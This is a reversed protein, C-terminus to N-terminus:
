SRKADGEAKKDEELEELMRQLEAEASGSRVCSVTLPLM